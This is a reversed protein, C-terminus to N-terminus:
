VARIKAVSPEQELLRKVKNLLEQSSAITKCDREVWAADREWREAQALLTAEYAAGHKTLAFARCSEAYGRFRGAAEQLQKVTTAM